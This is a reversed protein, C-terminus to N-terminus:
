LVQKIFLKPQELPLGHTGEVLLVKVHGPLAPLSKLNALVVASEKNGYILTTPMTLKDLDAHVHQNSIVHEMSESYSRWTHMVSDEAIHKPLHPLYKPALRKSIPRLAYCWTTCLIHSAPGYYTLKLLRKSQTIDEKAESADKYIPMNALILKSVLKPYLVAFKLAILAGMSHGLLTIPQSVGLSDLTEKIADAHSRPKYSNSNPSKGFGMLDIAIVRNTKALDEIYVGWYRLSAAMGHLLVIPKGSGNDQYNLIM